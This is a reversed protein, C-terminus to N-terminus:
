KGAAAEGKKRERYRRAKARNGCDAMNCWRRTGNKSHDLFLWGCPHGACERVRTLRPSTLLGAASRAVPWLLSTLSETMGTWTWVFAPLVGASVAATQVGGHGEAAVALHLHVLAEGLEAHLVQLDAHDPARMGAIASFIRYLAERLAIVRTLAEKQKAPDAQAQSLLHEAQAEDLIGNKRAWGLVAEYDTLREEPDPGAHWDATNAFDLALSLSAQDLAGL